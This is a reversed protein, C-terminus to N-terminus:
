WDGKRGPWRIAVASRTRVSRAADSLIVPHGVGAEGVDQRGVGVVGFGKTERAQGGLRRLSEAHDRADVAPDFREGTSVGKTLRTPGMVGM